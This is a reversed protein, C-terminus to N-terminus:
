TKVAKVEKVQGVLPEPIPLDIDVICFHPLTTWDRMKAIRSEDTERKGGVWEGEIEFHGHEDFAMVIRAKVTKTAKTAM